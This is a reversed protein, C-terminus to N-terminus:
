GRRPRWRHKSSARRGWIRVGVWAVWALVHWLWRWLPGETKTKALICDRFGADARRREEKTEAFAYAVDHLFCCALVTDRAMTCGDFTTVDYPPMHPKRAHAARAVEGMWVQVADHLHSIM